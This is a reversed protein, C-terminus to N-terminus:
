CPDVLEPHSRERGDATRARVPRAQDDKTVFRRTNSALVEDEAEDALGDGEVGTADRQLGCQLHLVHLAVHGAARGHDCGHRRHRLELQRHADDRHDRGCLIEDATVREPRAVDEACRVALRDLDRVGVRFPAEHQRIRQPIRSALAGSM